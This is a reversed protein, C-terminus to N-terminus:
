RVFERTVLRVLALERSVFTPITDPVAVFRTAVFREVADAEIVLLTRPALVIPAAHIVLAVMVLAKTDFIASPDTIKSATITLDDVALAIMPSVEMPFARTIADVRLLETIPLQETDLRLKVDEVPALELTVLRFKVAPVPDVNTRDAAVHVFTRVVFEVVAFETTVFRLKVDPVPVLRTSELEVTVLKSPVFM